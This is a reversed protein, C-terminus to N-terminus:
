NASEYSIEAHNCELLFLRNLGHNFVTCKQVYLDQLLTLYKQYM